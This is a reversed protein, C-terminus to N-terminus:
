IVKYVAVVVCEDEFTSLLELYDRDFFTFNKAYDPWGYSDSVAIYMIDYDEIFLELEEPNESFAKVPYNSYYSTIPWFMSMIKGQEHGKIFISSDVLAKNSCPVPYVFLGQIFSFLVFFALVVEFKRFMTRIRGAFIAAAFALIPVLPLMFRGEKHVFVQHFGFFLLVFLFLLAYEKRKWNKALIFIGGIIFFLLLSFMPIAMVLFFLGDTFDGSAWELTWKYAYFWDGTNMYNWSLWVFNVSIFLLLAAIYKPKVVRGKELYLIMLLYAIFVINATFRTLGAIGAVFFALYLGKGDRMWRFFFYLSMVIFVSSLIETHMIPSWEMHLPFALLFLSSITAVDRGFFRKVMIYTIAVSYVSILLPLLRIVAENMGFFVFSISLLTQLMPPRIVEFYVEEGIYYKANMIYVSDDWGFPADSLLFIRSVLAILVIFLFRKDKLM